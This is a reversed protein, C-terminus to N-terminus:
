ALAAQINQAAQAVRTEDMDSGFFYHNQRLCAIGTVGTGLFPDCIAWNAPDQAPNRASTTVERVIDSFGVISQAWAFAHVLEAKNAEPEFTIKDPLHSYAEFPYYDSGEKAQGEPYKHLVLLPRTTSKIRHAHILSPAGIQDYAIVQRFWLKDPQSMLGAMAVDLNGSGSLAVLIGEPKLAVAAFAALDKWVEAYERPYPPDTIIADLSNPEILGSSILESVPRCELRYRDDTTTAQFTELAQERLIDRQAEKAKAALNVKRGQSAEELEMEALARARAEDSMKLTRHAEAVTTQNKMIADFLRPDKEAVEKAQAVMGTTTQFRSAAEEASLGPNDLTPMPADLSGERVEKKDQQVQRVTVGVEDAIERNTLGDEMFLAVKEQRARAEIQKSVIYANTTPTALIVKAALAARQSETLHRRHFNLSSVKDRMEAESIDGLDQFIPPTGTIALAALRHYGDVVGGHWTLIPVQQGNKRIDDQFRSLAPDNPTDSMRPFENVIDWVEHPPYPSTIKEM